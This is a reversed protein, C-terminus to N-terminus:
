LQDRQLEDLIDQTRFVLKAGEQILVHCGDSHGTVIEGPVAFVERGSEMAREATILSGSRIKAEIVLTGETLGAIIRNRDPFHWKLPASGNPYESIVLHKECLYQQLKKHSRPYIVDLGSGIVAITKGSNAIAVKHAVGDIGQALGSVIVYSSVLPRILNHAARRGNDTANRAGVIGLSPKKLLEIDGLYFLVTPPNYVERLQQPYADDYFTIFQHQKMFDELEDLNTKCWHDIFMAKTKGLNAYLALECATFDTRQETEAAQMIKLIGPNSMGTTVKLRFLMEKSLQCM